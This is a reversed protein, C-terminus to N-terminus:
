DSGVLPDGFPRAEATPTPQLTAWGALLAGERKPDSFAHQHIGACETFPRLSAGCVDDSGVM